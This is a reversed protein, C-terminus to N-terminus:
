GADGESYRHETINILAGDVEITLWIQTLTVFQAMM